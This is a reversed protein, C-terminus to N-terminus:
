LKLAQISDGTRKTLTVSICWYGPLPLGAWPMVCSIIVPSAPRVSLQLTPVYWLRTQQLMMVIMITLHSASNPFKRVYYQSVSVCRSILLQRYRMGGRTGTTRPSVVWISAPAPALSLLWALHVRWDQWNILYFIHGSVVALNTLLLGVNAWLLVFLNTPFSSLM